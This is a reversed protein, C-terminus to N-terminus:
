KQVERIGEVAIAAAYGEQPQWAALGWDSGAVQPHRAGVLRASQGPDLEVDFGDLCSVSLGAAKIVAEKCTWGRFFGALRIEPALSRFRTQEVSSFFRSVLGDADAMPRLREVDVGLPRGGLAILALGDTHSVNFELRSGHEQLIPKGIGTLGLPVDVPRVNLLRGLLSRLLGRTLEFQQRAKEVRYRDARVREEGTLCDRLEEAALPPRALEIEWVRVEDVALELMEALLRCRIMRTTEGTM